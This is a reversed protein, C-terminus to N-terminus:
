SFGFFPWKVKSVTKGNKQNPYVAHGVTGGTGDFPQEDGHHGKEFRVFIVVKDKPDVEIGAVEPLM